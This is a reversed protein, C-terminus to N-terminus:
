KSEELLKFDKLAKEAEKKSLQGLRYQAIIKSIM